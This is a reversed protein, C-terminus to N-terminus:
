PGAATPTSGSRRTPPARPHRAPDRRRPRHGAQDQPHSVRGGRRGEAPDAGAHRARHHLHVAAGQRSRAGLAPVGARRAAQRGPRAARRLARRPGVANVRLMSGWRREAEELDFPDAPMGASTCTSRRWCRRRRDRRLLAAAGGRGLGRARGRRCGSGSPGTTARAAGRSSSRISPACSSISPKWTSLSPWPIRPPAPRLPSRAPHLSPSPAARAGAGRRRAPRARVRGRAARRDARGPLRERLRRTLDAYHEPELTFGGLPDGLM